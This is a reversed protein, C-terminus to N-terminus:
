KSRTGAGRWSGGTQQKLSETNAKRLLTAAKVLSRCCQGAEGAELKTKQCGFVRLINILIMLLEAFLALVASPFM